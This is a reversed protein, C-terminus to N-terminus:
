VFAFCDVKQIKRSQQDVLRRSSRRKRIGFKNESKSCVLGGGHLILTPSARLLQYATTLDCEAELASALQFPYLGTKSDRQGIVDPATQFLLKVGNNWSRGRVIALHLPLRGTAHDPASAAEPYVELLPNLISILETRSKPPCEKKQISANTTNGNSCSASVTSDGHHNLDRTEFTYACTKRCAIHLPLRGREDREKLQEPFMKVAFRLLRPNCNVAALAHLCRWKGNKEKGKEKEKSGQGAQNPITSYASYSAADVTLRTTCRLMLEIKRWWSGLVGVLDEKSRAAIMDQVNQKVRKKEADMDDVMKSPWVHIVWLLTLPTMGSNDKLLVAEPHETLLFKIKPLAAGVYCAYHLPTMGQTTQQTIQEPCAEHLLRMTKM